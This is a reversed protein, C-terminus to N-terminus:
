RLDGPLGIGAHYAEGLLVGGQYAKITHCTSVQSTNPRIMRFRTGAAGPLAAGPVWRVLSLDDFTVGGVIIRLEVEVNAPVGLTAMRNEWVQSSPRIEVVRLFSDPAAQIWFPNIRRSGLVPGDSGARAVAFHEAYMSDVTLTINTGDWSLRVGPDAQFVVGPSVGPCFWVRQRGVLCAPEEAPLPAAYVQVTLTRSVTGGEVGNWVAALTWVGEVDLPLDLTAGLQSQLSHRVVGGVAVELSAMGQTSVGSPPVATVRLTDGVRASLQGSAALLNLPTWAVAVAATNAGNEFAIELPTSMGSPDLPLDAYWRGAVGACVAVGDAGSVASALLPWRATGEICVPSLPSTAPAVMVRNTRAASSTIWDRIGDGDGDVGGLSGLAVSCVRVSLQPSLANWSLRVRHTGANLFPLVVTFSDRSGRLFGRGVFQGDVSVLFDSEEVRAGSGAVSRWEHRGSLRLLPKEAVPMNFLYEFNGRGTLVLDGNDCYSPGDRLVTEAGARTIIPVWVGDFEASLPDTGAGHVEDGDSLGDGDSDADTLSTGWALEEKDGLGDGDTDVALPNSFYLFIEDRDKIGDGDSDAASAMLRDKMWDQIGDGDADVGNVAILRIRELAPRSIRSDQVVRNKWAVTFRHIGSPLWPTILRATGAHGVDGRCSLSGVERGVLSVRFDFAYGDPPDYSENRVDIELVHFGPTVVSLDYACISATSEAWVLAGGKETFDTTIHTVKRVATEVGARESVVTADPKGDGDSDPLLPDLRFIQLEDGDWLGDKDSDFRTPLTRTTKTEAVDTLADCDADGYAPAAACWADRAFSEDADVGVLRFRLIALSRNAAVDEVWALRFRNTGEPLWPTRVQWIEDDAPVPVTFRAIEADDVSLALHVSEGPQGEGAFRFEVLHFGPTSLVVDYGVRKGVGEDAVLCGDSTRWVGSIWSFGDGSLDAVVYGDQIGNNNSDVLFPDTGFFMCEDINSIGDDDYDMNNQLPDIGREVELLDSLGDGDSDASWIDTGITREQANSLGDGDFDLGDPEETSFLIADAMADRGEYASDSRMFFRNPRTLTADAFGLDRHVAVGQFCLTYTKNAYDLRFDVRAWLGTLGPFAQESVLWQGSAGDYAVVHGAADTVFAAAGIQERPLRPGNPVCRQRLSCWVVANTFAADVTKAAIRSATGGPGNRLLAMCQAGEYADTDSVAVGETAEWGQQGHLVGAAYGEGTEFGIWAEVVDPTNTADDPTSGPVPPPNTSSGSEAALQANQDDDLGDGDSDQYLVSVAVAANGQASQLSIVSADPWSSLPLRNTLWPPFADGFEVPAALAVLNSDLMSATFAAAAQGPAAVALWLDNSVLTRDLTMLLRDEPTDLLWGYAYAGGAFPAGGDALGFSAWEPRVFLNTCGYTFRPDGWLYVARSVPNEDAGDIWGDLDTDASFPDTGAAGEALNDLGDGDPDELGDDVGVTLGFFREFLDPLGDGDEDAEMAHVALLFCAAGAAATQLAARV